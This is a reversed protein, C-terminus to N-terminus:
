QRPGALASCLSRNLATRARFGVEYRASWNKRWEIMSVPSPAESAHCALADCMILSSKACVPPSPPIRGNKSAWQSAFQRANFSSMSLFPSSRARRRCRTSRLAPGAASGAAYWGSGCNSALRVGGGCCCCCCCCSAAASSRMGVFLADPFVPPPSVNARSSVGPLRPASSFTRSTAWVLRMRRPVAGSTAFSTAAASTLNLVASSSPPTSTASSYSFKSGSARRGWSRCLDASFRQRYRRGKESAWKVVTRFNLPPLPLPFSVTTSYGARLWKRSWSGASLARRYMGRASPQIRSRMRLNLRCRSLSRARSTVMRSVKASTGGASRSWQSSANLPKAAAQFRFQGRMVMNLQRGSGSMYRLTCIPRSVWSDKQRGQSCSSPTQGRARRCCRAVVCLLRTKLTSSRISVLEDELSVWAADMDRSTDERCMVMAWARLYSTSLSRIGNKSFCHTVWLPYSKKLASDRSRVWWRARMGFISRSIRTKVKAWSCCRRPPSAGRLVLTSCDGRGFSVMSWMRRSRAEGARAEVIRSTSSVATANRVAVPPLKTCWSSVLTPSIVRACYTAFTRSMSRAVSSRPCAM